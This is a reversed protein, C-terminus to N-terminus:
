VLKAIQMLIVTGQEWAANIIKRVVHTEELVYFALKMMVHKKRNAPM